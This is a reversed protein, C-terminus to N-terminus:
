FACSKLLEPGYETPIYSKFILTLNFNTNRIIKNEYKAVWGGSANHPRLFISLLLRKYVCHKQLVSYCRDHNKKKNHLSVRPLRHDLEGPYLVLVGLVPLGVEDSLLGRM